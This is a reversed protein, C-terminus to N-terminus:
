SVIDTYARNMLVLSDVGDSRLLNNLIHASILSSSWDKIIKRVIQYALVLIQSRSLICYVSGVVHVLKMM